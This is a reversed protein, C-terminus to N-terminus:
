LLGIAQLVDDLSRAVCYILHSGTHASIRDAFDLQGNALDNKGFKTEVLMTRDNKFCVLDPFSRLGGRAKKDQSTDVVLWDMKRLTDRIDCRLAAENRYDSFVLTEVFRDKRKYARRANSTANKTANM